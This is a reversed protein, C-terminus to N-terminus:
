TGVAPLAQRAELYSMDYYRSEYHRIWYWRLTQLPTIALVL